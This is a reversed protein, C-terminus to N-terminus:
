PVADRGYLDRDDADDAVSSGRARGASQSRFLVGRRDAPEHFCVPLGGRGM